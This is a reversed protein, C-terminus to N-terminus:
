VAIRQLDELTCLADVPIGESEINQRGNQEQRDIMAVAKVVTLGAERCKQIAEITSKGSTIVDDVVLVLDGAKVDGELLKGLGHAKPEKRVAFARVSRGASHAADSVAIAIPYAGILLGGAADITGAKELMLQGVIQRVSAHSLGVRCDVYFRSMAGSALKFIATESYQFSGTELLLQMLRERTATM